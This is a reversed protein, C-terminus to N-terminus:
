NRTYDAIAENILDLNYRGDLGTKIHDFIPKTIKGNRDLDYDEETYGGMSNQARVSISWSDTVSNYYAYTISVSSPNKFQGVCRFFVDTLERDRDSLREYAPKEKVTVSLTSFVDNDASIIISTQGATLGTVLGNEDVTAISDDVTKWTVATNTANEPMIIYAIQYTDDVTIECSASSLVISQVQVTAETTTIPVTTTEATTTTMGQTDTSKGCGCLLLIVLILALLPIKNRM